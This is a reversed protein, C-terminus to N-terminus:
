GGPTHTPGMARLLEIRQALLAQEAELELLAADYSQVAGAADVKSKPKKVLENKPGYLPMMTITPQFETGDPINMYAFGKAFKREVQTVRCIFGKHICIEGIEYRRIGNEIHM